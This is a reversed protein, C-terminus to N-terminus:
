QRRRMRVSNAMGAAFAHTEGNAITAISGATIVGAQCAEEIVPAINRAFDPRTM